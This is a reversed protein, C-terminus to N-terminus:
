APRGPVWVAVAPRGLALVAVAPRGLALVAVALWGRMLAAVAKLERGAAPPGPVSFVEARRSGQGASAAVLQEAVPLTPGWFVVVALHDLLM